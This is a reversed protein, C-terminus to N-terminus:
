TKQLYYVAAMIKQESNLTADRMKKKLPQIDSPSDFNEMPLIALRLLGGEREKGDASRESRRRQQLNGLLLDHELALVFEVEAKYGHVLPLKV